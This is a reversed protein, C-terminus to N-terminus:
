TLIQDFSISLRHYLIRCYFVEERSSYCSSFSGGFGDECYMPSSTTIAVASRTFYVLFSINCDHSLVGVTCSAIITWFSINTLFNWLLVYSCYTEICLAIALEWVKSILVTCTYLEADNDAVVNNDHGIIICFSMINLMMGHSSTLLMVNVYRVNRKLPLGWHWVNYTTQSIFETIYTPGGCMRHVSTQCCLSRCNM